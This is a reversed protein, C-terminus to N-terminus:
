DLGVGAALPAICLMALGFAIVWLAIPWLVALGLAMLWLAILWLMALGPCMIALGPAILWAILEGLGCPM